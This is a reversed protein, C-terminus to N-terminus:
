NPEHGSREACKKHARLIDEPRPDHTYSDHIDTINDTLVLRREGNPIWKGCVACNYHESYWHNNMIYDSIRKRNKHIIDMPLDSWIGIPIENQCYKCLQTGLTHLKM